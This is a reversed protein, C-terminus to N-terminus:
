RIGFDKIILNSANGLVTIPLNDRKTMALLERVEDTNKPFAVLDAPGGTETFTYKSLPENKLLEIKEM